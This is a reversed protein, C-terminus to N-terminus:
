GGLNPPQEFTSVAYLWIAGSVLMGTVPVVWARRRLRTALLVLALTASAPLRPLHM